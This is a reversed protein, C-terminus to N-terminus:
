CDTNMFRCTVTKIRCDETLPRFEGTMLKCKATNMRRAMTRLMLLRYVRCNFNMCNLESTTLEYPRYIRLRCDANSLCCDATSLGYDYIPLCWDGTTLEAAMFQCDANSRCCDANLLRCAIIVLQYIPLRYSCDNPLRCDSTMFFCADTPLRFNTTQRECDYISLGCTGTPM